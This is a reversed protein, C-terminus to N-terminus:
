TKCAFVEEEGVRKYGVVGATLRTAPEIAAHIAGGDVRCTGVLDVPEDARFALRGERERRSPLAETNL